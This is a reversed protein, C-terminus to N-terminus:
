GSSVEVLQAVIEDTTISSNRGLDDGSCENYFIPFRMGVTPEQWGDNHLCQVLQPSWETFSILNGRTRSM